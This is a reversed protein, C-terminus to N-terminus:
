NFLVEFRLASAVANLDRGTRNLVNEIEVEGVGPRWSRMLRKVARNGHLDRCDLRFIKGNLGRLFKPVVQCAFVVPCKNNMLILEIAKYFGADPELPVDVDDIFVVTGSKEGKEISFTQTAEGLVRVVNARSRNVSGNLELLKLKLDTVLQRVLHTKGSGAPGEVIFFKENRQLKNAKSSLRKKYDKLSASLSSSVQPYIPCSKEKAKLGPAPSLAKQGPKQSDTLKLKKKITNASNGTKRKRM